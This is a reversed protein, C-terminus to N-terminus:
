AARGSPVIHDGETEAQTTYWNPGAWELLGKSQVSSATEANLTATVGDKGTVHTPTVGSANFSTDDNLTTGDIPSTISQRVVSLRRLLSLLFTSLMVCIYYLRGLSCMWSITSYKIAWTDDFDM